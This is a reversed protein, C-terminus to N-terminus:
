ILGQPCDTDHVQLMRMASTMKSNWMAPLGKWNAMGLRAHDCFAGRAMGFDIILTHSQVNLLVNSPKLNHHIFNCSHVFRMGVFGQQIGSRHLIILQLM